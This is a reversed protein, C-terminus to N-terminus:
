YAPALAPVKHIFTHFYPLTGAPLEQYQTRLTRSLQADQLLFDKPWIPTDNQIRYNAQREVLLYRVSPNQLAINLRDLVERAAWSDPPTTILFATGIFTMFPTKRQARLLLTPSYGWEVIQDNAGLKSNLIRGAISGATTGAYHPERFFTLAVLLACMLLSLNRLGVTWPLISWVVALLVVMAWLLPIFHYLSGPKGQLYVSLAGSVVMILSAIVPRAPQCWRRRGPPWVLAIASGLLCLGLAVQRLRLDALFEFMMHLRIPWPFKIQSYPGLDYFIGWKIFGGLEGTAALVIIFLISVLAIALGYCLMGRLIAWRQMRDCLIVGTVGLILVALLATPKIWLSLGAMVGFFAWARKGVISTPRISSPDRPGLPLLLPIAGVVFLPWGFSERQATWMWGTAFYTTLYACGALLRLALPTGWFALVLSTALLMAYLFILDLARLGWADTGAILYALAHPLLIGPWNPDVLDVYPRMGHFMGWTMYAQAAQDDWYDWNLYFTAGFGVLVTAFAWADFKIASLQLRAPSNPRLENM